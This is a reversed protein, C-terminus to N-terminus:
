QDLFFGRCGLRNSLAKQALHLWLSLVRFFIERFVKSSNRELLQTWEEWPRYRLVLYGVDGEFAPGMEGM